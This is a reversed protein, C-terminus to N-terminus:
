IYYIDPGIGGIRSAPTQFTGDKRTPSELKDGDFFGGSEGDRIPNRVVRLKSGPRSSHPRECIEQWSSQGLVFGMRVWFEIGEGVSIDEAWPRCIQLVQIGLILKPEQGAKPIVITLGPGSGAIEVENAIKYHAQDGEDPLAHARVFHGCGNLLLELGVGM